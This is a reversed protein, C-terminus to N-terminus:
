VTIIFVVVNFVYNIIHTHQIRAETVRSAVIMMRRRITSDDTAQRATCYKEVNNDCVGRNKLSFFNSFMFYTNLNERYSEDSVKGNQSSNLWINDYM